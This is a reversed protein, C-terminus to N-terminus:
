KRYELKLKELQRLKQAEVRGIERQELGSGGLGRAGYRSRIQDTKEEYESEIDKKKLEYIRGKRREDNNKMSTLNNIKKNKSTILRLSSILIGASLTFIYFIPPLSLVDLLGIILGLLTLGISVISYWDKLIELLSNKYDELSNM